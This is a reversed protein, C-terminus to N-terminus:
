HKREQADSARLHRELLGAVFENGAASLHGYVRGGDEMVHLNKLAELGEVELVTKLPQWSDVLEIESARACQVIKLAFEPEEKYATISAGNYQLLALYRIGGAAAFHKMRNLLLCSVLISDVGTKLYINPDWWEKGYGAGTIVTNALHSYGLISRWIGLSGPSSAMRQVPQNHLVLEGHDVTFYPKGGGAFVRYQNNLIANSEFSLVITTPHLMPTLAEARLEIQDVAYGGNGANLVPLGLKRELFAPWTESNPVQAGAAFSDGSVLIGGSALAWIKNQNMRVGFEGSYVPVGGITARQNPKLVWGVVEDYQAYPQANAMDAKTAVFNELHFIPVGDYLRLSAEVLLLACMTTLLARGVAALVGRVVRIASYLFIV